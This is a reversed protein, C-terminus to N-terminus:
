LDNLLEEKRIIQYKLSDLLFHHLGMRAEFCEHSRGSAKLEHNAMRTKAQQYTGVFLYAIFNLIKMSASSRASETAAGPSVVNNQRTMPSLQLLDRYYQLGLVPIVRLADRATLRDLSESFMGQAFSRDMCLSLCIEKFGRIRRVILAYLLVVWLCDQNAIMFIDIDDERRPDYSVSGAIGAFSVLRYPLSWIFASGSAVKIAKINRHAPSETIEM